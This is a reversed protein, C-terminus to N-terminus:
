PAHQAASPSWCFHPHSDEDNALAGPTSTTSRMTIVNLFSYVTGYEIMLARRWQHGAMPMYFQGLVM